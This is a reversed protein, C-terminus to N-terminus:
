HMGFCIVGATDFIREGREQRFDDQGPDYIALVCAVLTDEEGTCSVLAMMDTVVEIPRTITGTGFVTTGSVAVGAVSRILLHSRM